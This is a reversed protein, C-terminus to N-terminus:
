RSVPVRTEQHQRVSLDEAPLPDADLSPGRSLEAEVGRHRAVLLDQGVGGVGALDHGEREGMDAIGADVVLVHFRRHRQRASAHQVLGDRRRRAVARLRGQRSPQRQVPHRADGADVRTLDDTEQALFPRLVAHDGVVAAADEIDIGQAGGRGM